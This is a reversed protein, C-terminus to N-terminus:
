KYRRMKRFSSDKKDVNGWKKSVRGRNGGVVMKRSIMDEHGEKNYSKHENNKQFEETRINTGM